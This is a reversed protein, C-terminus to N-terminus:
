WSIGIILYYSKSRIIFFIVLAPKEEVNKDEDLKHTKVKYQIIYNQENKDYISKQTYIIPKDEEFEFYIKSSPIYDLNYSYEPLKEINYSILYSNNKTNEYKENIIKLEKILIEKEIKIIKNNVKIHINGKLESNQYIIGNNGKFIPFNRFLEFEYSKSSEILQIFESIFIVEEKAPINGMNIIINDNYRDESVFIAANGQAVSDSYKEVAKEKKIVKSKVFISDGIKCSFSSFILGEKKSVYIKLELPNESTNTFKQTIKTKSFFENIESDLEVNVTLANQEEKVLSNNNESNSLEEKNFM